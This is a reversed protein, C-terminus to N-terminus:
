LDSIIRGLERFFINETEAIHLIRESIEQLDTYLVNKQAAFWDEYEEDAVPIKKGTRIIKRSTDTWYQGHALMKDSMERLASSNFIDAAEKLFVGYMIRFAGGGTGQDEFGVATFMIGERLHVGRYKVPWEMIKSAFLRIGNIGVFIFLKNIVPPLIINRVTEQIGKKIASKWNINGPIATIYSLTNNRALPSYTEWAASLDDIHLKGIEPFYPDSILYHEKDQKGVIAIFHLPAHIHLYEPLYKMYMMDVTAAVPINKNLLEDTKKLADQVRKYQMTKIDIGCFGSCNKVVLGPRNRIGLLPFGVHNKQFFLYYFAPGSGIGFLMAESIEKGSFALLNRLSGTECHAGASHKFNSIMNM